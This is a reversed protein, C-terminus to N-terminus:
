IVGRDKHSDGGDMEMAKKMKYFWFEIDMVFIVGRIATACQRSFLIRRNEFM